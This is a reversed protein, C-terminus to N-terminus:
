SAISFRKRRGYHLLTLTTEVVGADFQPGANAALITLASTMAHFADAVAVVRSELPIEDGRLGDPYGEGDIREHHARVIPALFALKPTDQLAAAGIETHMRMAGWEPTTLPGAKQLVDRHVGLKGIDHLRAALEITMVVDIPLQMANAIRRALASTADLHVATERDHMRVIRVLGAALETTEPDFMGDRIRIILPLFGDGCFM